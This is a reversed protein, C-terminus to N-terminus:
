GSVRLRVDQSRSARGGFSRERVFSRSWLMAGAPGDSEPRGGAPVLLSVLASELARPRKMRDSM